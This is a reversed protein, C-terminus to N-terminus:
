LNIPFHRMGTDAVILSDKLVTTRLAPVNCSQRLLVFDIQVSQNRHNVFTAICVRLPGLHQSCSTRPGSAFRSLHTPRKSPAATPPSAPVQMPTHPSLDGAVIMRNRQPVSASWARMHQWILARDQLLLEVPDQEQNQYAQKTPKWAHQYM